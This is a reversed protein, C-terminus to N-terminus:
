SFNECGQREKRGIREREREVGKKKNVVKRLNKEEIPKDCDMM